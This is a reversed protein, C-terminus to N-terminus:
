SQGSKFTVYLFTTEKAIGRLLPNIKDKENMIKTTYGVTKYTENKYFFICLVGKVEKRFVKRIM